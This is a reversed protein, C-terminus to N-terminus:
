RISREDVAQFLEMLALSDVLLAISHTTGFSGSQGFLGALEDVNPQDEIFITTPEGHIGSNTVYHQDNHTAQGVLQTIKKFGPGTGVEGPPLFSNTTSFSRFTDQRTAQYQQDTYVNGRTEVSLGPHIM